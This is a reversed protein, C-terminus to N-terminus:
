QGSSTKLSGSASRQLKTSNGRSNRTLHFGSITSEVKIQHWPSRSEANTGKLRFKVSLGNFHKSTVDTWEQEDAINQRETALKTTNGGTNFSLILRFGKCLNHKITGSVVVQM